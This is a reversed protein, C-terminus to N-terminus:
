YQCHILTSIKDSTQNVTSNGCMPLADTSARSAIASSVARLTIAPRVPEPNGAATTYRHVTDTTHTRDPLLSRM